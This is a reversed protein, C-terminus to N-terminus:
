SPLYLLGKIKVFYYNAHSLMQIRCLYVNNIFVIKNILAVLNMVTQTPPFDKQQRRNTHQLSILLLYAM